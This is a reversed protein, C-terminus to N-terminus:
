GSLKTINEGVTVGESCTRSSPVRRRAVGTGSALCPRLPGVANITTNIGTRLQVGLERLALAQDTTNM